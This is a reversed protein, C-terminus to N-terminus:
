RGRSKCLNKKNQEKGWRVILAHFENYKKVSKPFNKEFYQRYDEYDKFKINYEACLRRTYADVVFVPRKGAYLLISDITEPGVGWIGLLEERKKLLNGQLFKKTDGQYNDLIYKSFIKLKKVKQRYYGSPKIFRELKSAPFKAIARPTLIRAKRLNLLAKEVNQWNTNQTLIAGVCIEFRKDGGKSLVPWWHQPGYFKYLRNYIVLPKM